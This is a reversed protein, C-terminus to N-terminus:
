DKKKPQRRKWIAVRGCKDCRMKNVKPDSYDVYYVDTAFVYGSVPHPVGARLVRNEMNYLRGGCNCDLQSKGM